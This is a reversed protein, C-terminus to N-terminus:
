KTMWKHVEETVSLLGRRKGAMIWLCYNRYGPAVTFPHYGKPIEVFDGTKVRYAEDITGDSTYVMQVGFGQPKDFEFYYIEDLFAEPPADVDHKHPPFSAWSGDKVWFEGIYLKDAPVTEPFTFAVDRVYAGKGFTSMAVDEAKTFVAPYDKEARAKCLCIKVDGGVATVTFPKNRGVYVSEAATGEFVSKRVGVKPFSFGEGTVSCTGYLVVLVFEKGEEDVTYKKGDALKLMDAEEYTLPSNRETVIHEYGYKESYRKLLNM